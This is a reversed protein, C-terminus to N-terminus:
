QIQDVFKTLWIKVNMNSSGSKVKLLREYDETGCSVAGGDIDEVRTPKRFSVARGADHGFGTGIGIEDLEEHENSSSTIFPKRLRWPSTCGRMGIAFREIKTLTHNLNTISTYAWVEEFTIGFPSFGEFDVKSM